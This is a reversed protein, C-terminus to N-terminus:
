VEQKQILSRQVITQIVMKTNEALYDAHYSPLISVHLCRNCEFVGGTEELYLKENLHGCIPCNVDYQKM